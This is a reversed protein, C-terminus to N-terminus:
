AVPNGEPDILGDLYGEEGNYISLMRGRPAPAFSIHVWRNFELICQDYAIGSARIAAAIEIPSGYAPCTFDAAMGQTHQSATAGGVARNLENCRFGSSIEIPAGLLTQVQELGEALRRLNDLSDNAPTNDIGLREATESVTLHEVSFHRTLWLSM